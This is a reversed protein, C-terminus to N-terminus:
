LLLYPCSSCADPPYMDAPTNNVASRTKCLFLLQYQFHAYPPLQIILMSLFLISKTASALTSIAFGLPSRDHKKIVINEGDLAAYADESTIYLTNLLTRM